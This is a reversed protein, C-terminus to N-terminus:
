MAETEKSVTALKDYAQAATETATKCSEWGDLFARIYNTEGPSAKSITEVISEYDKEQKNFKEM